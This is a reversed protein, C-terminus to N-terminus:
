FVVGLAYDDNFAAIISYVMLGYFAHNAKDLPIVLFKFIKKLQDM